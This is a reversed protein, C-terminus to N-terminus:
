PFQCGAFDPSPPTADIALNPEPVALSPGTAVCGPLERVCAACIGDAKEILLAYRMAM